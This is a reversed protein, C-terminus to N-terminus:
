LRMSARGAPSPPQVHLLRDRGRSHGSFPAEEALPAGAVPTIVCVPAARRALSRAHASRTHRGEQLGLGVTALQKFQLSQSPTIINNELPM